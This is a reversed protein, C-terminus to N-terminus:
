VLKASCDITISGTGSVKTYIAQVSVYGGREVNLMCSASNGAISFNAIETYITGFISAQISLNGVPATGTWYAQISYCANNDLTQPVSSVSAASMDGNTLLNNKFALIPSLSM